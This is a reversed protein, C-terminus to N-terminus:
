KPLPGTFPKAIVKHKPRTVDKKVAKVTLLSIIAFYM